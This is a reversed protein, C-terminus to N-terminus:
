KIKGGRKILSKWLLKTQYFAKIKMLLTMHVWCVKECMVLSGGFHLLSIAVWTNVETNHINKKLMQKILHVIVIVKNTNPMPLIVGLNYRRVM